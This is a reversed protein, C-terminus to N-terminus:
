TSLLQWRNLVPTYIATVGEAPNLVFDVSRPCSFRVDGSSATGSEHKLTVIGTSTADRHACIHLVRAGLATSPAPGIGHIQVAAGSPQTIHMFTVNSSIDVTTSNTSAPTVATSNLYLAGTVIHRNRAVIDGTFTSGGTVSLNAVTSNSSNLRATGTLYGDEIAAVEDQLDGVHAADITQGNSRSAFTKATTPFSAM